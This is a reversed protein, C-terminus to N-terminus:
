TFACFVKIKKTNKEMDIDKDSGLFGSSYPQERLMTNTFYKYPWDASRMFNDEGSTDTNSNRLQTLNSCSRYDYVFSRYFTCILTFTFFYHM